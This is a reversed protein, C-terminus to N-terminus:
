VGDTLVAPVTYKSTQIPLGPGADETVFVLWAVSLVPPPPLQNSVVAFQSSGFTKDPVDHFGNPDIASCALVATRTLLILLDTLTVPVAFRYKGNVLLVLEAGEFEFMVGTLMTSVCGNLIWPEDGQATNTTSLLAPPSTFKADDVLVPYSFSPVAVGRGYPM